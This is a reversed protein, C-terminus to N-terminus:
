LHAMGMLERWEMLVGRGEIGWRYNPEGVAEVGGIRRVRFRQEILWFYIM